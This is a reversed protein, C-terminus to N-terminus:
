PRARGATPRYQSPGREAAMRRITKPDNCDTGRNRLCDARLEEIQRKRAEELAEQRERMQREYERRRDENAQRQMVAREDYPYGYASQRPPPLAIKRGDKEPPTQSYTVRGQEDVHKYAERATSQACASTAFGACLLLIIAIRNM